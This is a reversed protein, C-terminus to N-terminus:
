INIVDHEDGKGIIFNSDITLLLFQKIVSAIINKAIAIQIPDTGYSGISHSRASAVV